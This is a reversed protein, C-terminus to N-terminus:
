CLCRSGLGCKNGDLIVITGLGVDIEGSHDLVATEAFEPMATLKSRGSLLANDPGVAVRQIRKRNDVEIGSRHRNCQWVCALAEHPHLDDILILVGRSGIVAHASVGQSSLHNARAIGNDYDTEKDIKRIFFVDPLDMSQLILDPEVLFSGARKFNRM